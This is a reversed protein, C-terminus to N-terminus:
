EAKQQKWQCEDSHRTLEEAHARAKKSIQPFQKLGTNFSPERLSSKHKGRHSQILYEAHHNLFWVSLIFECHLGV